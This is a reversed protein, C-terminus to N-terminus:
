INATPLIRVVCTPSYPTLLHVRREHGPILCVELCPGHDIEEGKLPLSEKTGILVGEDRWKISYFGEPKRGVLLRSEETPTRKSRLSWM